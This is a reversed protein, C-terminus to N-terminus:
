TTQSEGATRKAKARLIVCLRWDLFVATRRTYNAALKFCLNFGLSVQCENLRVRVPVQVARFSPLAAMIDVSYCPSEDVRFQARPRPNIQSGAFISVCLYIRSNKSIICKYLYIIYIYMYMCAHATSVPIRKKPMREFLLRDLSGGKVRRAWSGRLRRSGRIVCPGVYCSSPARFVVYVCPDWYPTYIYIHIYIYFITYLIHYLTYPIYLIHYISNIQYITYSCFSGM